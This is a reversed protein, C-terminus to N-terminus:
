PRGRSLGNLLEQRDLMPRPRTPPEIWEAPAAIAPVADGVAVVQIQHNAEVQVREGEGAGDGQAARPAVFRAHLKLALLTGKQRDVTVSGELADVVTATRWLSQKGSPGRTRVAVPVDQRSLMVQWAPRGAATAEVPASLRIYPAVAELLAAGPEYAIARLRNVQDSEPKYRIFPEYRMRLYLFNQDLVAEIGTGHDNQSALQLRGAADVAISRTEDLSVAVSEWAASGTYPKEPSDARFGPKVVPTAAAPAPAAGATPVVVPTIAWHTQSEIRHPGLRAAVEAHPLALLQLLLDTRTLEAGSHVATASPANERLGFNEAGQKKCGGGLVLCLGLALGLGVGLASFSRARAQRAPLQRDVPLSARDDM